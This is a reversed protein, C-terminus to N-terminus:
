ILTVITVVGPDVFEVDYCGVVSTTPGVIVDIDFIFLSPVMM